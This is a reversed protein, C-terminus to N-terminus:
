PVLQVVPSVSAAGNDILLKMMDAYRQWRAISLACHGNSAVSELDAGREVLVKAYALNNFKAATILATYGDKSNANIHGGHDLFLHALLPSGRAANSILPTEERENRVNADSGFKLFYGLLVHPEVNLSSWLYNHFALSSYIRPTLYIDAGSNVLVCITLASDIEVADTLATARDLHIKNVRANNKILLKAMGSSGKTAAFRLATMGTFSQANIDAGHELLLGAVDHHLGDVAYMLATMGINTALNVDAQQEILLELIEMYGYRAALMLPTMGFKDALNVNAQQEILRELIERHGHKTAVMLPTTGMDDTINTDAQHELLLSTVLGFGKTVAHSLPTEGLLNRRNVNAGYEILLKAIDHNQALAALSLPGDGDHNKMEVYAGHTLLLKVIEYKAVQSYDEKIAFSLAPEGRSTSINVDAQHEILLRTVAEHCNQIAAILPTNGNAFRLDVDFGRWILLETLHIHGAKAAFEFLDAEIPNVYPIVNAGRQLLLELVRVQGKEFARSLATRKGRDQKNPDEGQEILWLVFEALGQEAAWTLPTRGKYGRNFDTRGRFGETIDCGNIITSSWGLLAAVAEKSGNALAAFLPFEYSEGFINISSHKTLWLRILRALGKDALVYILSAEQTYHRSKFQETSNHVKIWSPLSFELLFDDQPLAMVAADAHYLLNQASYQLLCYDEENSDNMTHQLQLYFQCCKKLTEHSSAEWELGLDPWLEYLGGDKILFDRVSEHIFQVAPKKGKTIEALGKSSSIVSIEMSEEADEARINPVEKDVSERDRMALGAWIAHYYEMPKLPRKASLIWLVCLLLDEMNEQDRSLLDRFLETLGTPVESLRKRLAYRGRRNEKNLIDVVLVVWLFVGASKELLKSQLEILLTSDRIRLNGQIYKTLDDTHGTQKELILRLGVRIDIYPYHRSSFCVKLRIRNDTSLESLEEFFCVIDAAQQEDCEDLADIFCTISREGLRLIGSHFLNKLIDVSPCSEQTRPIIDSDDFICQLDPFAELLQFLLSRYMGWLSKELYDGRASFFFSITQVHGLRDKAKTQRYVFKMITSKGVAPKGKIWLFGHHNSFQEEDLWRAYEPLQLFWRCTKAHERKISTKRSDIYDFKLSDMLRQRRESLVRNESSSPLTETATENPVVKGVAEDVPLVGILERAYAAAAIAAYKQWEKDKHSDSYDCIGRIPICPLLDMLAAAEMEFCITGNLTRSYDDRTAGHKVVQNGSAIAGYHIVPTDNFRIRRPIIKSPDCQDCTSTSSVQHEYTAQYLHDPLGPHKYEPVRKTREEMIQKVKSGDLDHKARLSSVVTGVQPQLLKPVDTREIFGGGVVKSLDYPMVRTGVVIDGLRIDASFSPVGGGIGVMLGIRISTFTRILHALVAGAKVTGYQMAPLCAIVVNHQQISGLVYTNSDHKPRPLDEHIEDLMAVAASMEFHLACIWAITYQSELLTRQRKLRHPVDEADSSENDHM